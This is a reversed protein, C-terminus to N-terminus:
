KNLNLRRKVEELDAPDDNFCYESQKIQTCIEPLDGYCISEAHRCANEFEWEGAQKVSGDSFHIMFGSRFRMGNGVLSWSVAHERMSPGGYGGSAGTVLYAVSNAYASHRSSHAEPNKARGLNLAKELIQSYQDLKEM